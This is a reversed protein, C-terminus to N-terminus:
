VIKSKFGPTKGFGPQMKCKVSIIEADLLVIALLAAVGAPHSPLLLSHLVGARAASSSGLVAPGAPVPSGGARASGGTGTAPEFVEELQGGDAPQVRSGGRYNLPQQVTSTGTASSMALGPALSRLRPLLLLLSPLRSQAFMPPDRSAGRGLLAAKEM